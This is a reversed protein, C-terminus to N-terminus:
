SGVAKGSILWGGDAAKWINLTNWSALTWTAYATGADGQLRATGGTFTITMPSGSYNALTCLFELPLSNPVTVGTSDTKYHAKGNDAALVTSAGTYANRKLAKFGWQDSSAELSLVRQGINAIDSAFVGDLLEAVVFISQEAARDLNAESVTSGGEFDVLPLDKPTDRYIVFRLASAPIPPTVQLQYQGLFMGETVLLDVKVGDANLYYAKVHSKFIYGGTFTFNWITQVGDIDAWHNQSYLQQILTAAM